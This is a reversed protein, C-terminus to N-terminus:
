ISTVENSMIQMLWQAVQSYQIGIVREFFTVESWQNHDCIYTKDMIHLFCQVIIQKRTM